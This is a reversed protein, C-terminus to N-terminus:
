ERERAPLPNPHPHANSGRPSARARDELALNANGIANLVGRIDRIVDDNRFRVVTFGQEELEQERLLDYDATTDHSHGDLEIVLKFKPCYFDAIYFGLVHQRRFKVSGFQGGRIKSWLLREPYTLERRLRRAHKTMGIPIRHNKEDSL